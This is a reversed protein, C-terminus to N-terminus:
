RELLEPNEHINGIIKFPNQASIYHTECSDKYYINFGGNSFTVEGISINKEELIDGEFILKENIDKLGTCQLKGVIKDEEFQAQCDGECVPNGENLECDCEHHGDLIDDIGCVEILDEISYETSVSKKGHSDIIFKFKYRDMLKLKRNFRGLNYVVHICIDLM